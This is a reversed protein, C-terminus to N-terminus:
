AAGRQLRVLFQPFKLRKSSPTTLNSIGNVHLGTRRRKMRKIRTLVALGTASIVM